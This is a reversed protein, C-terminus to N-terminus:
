IGLILLTIIYSISSFSLLVKYWPQKFQEGKKFTKYIEFMTKLTYMISMILFFVMIFKLM